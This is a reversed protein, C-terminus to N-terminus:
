TLLEKYLKFLKEEEIVWNYKEEVSQRGRRGMKEAETPHDILYVVAEAIEQPNMPDVCLGCKNSEVIERWLPFNSSIVPIGAAMYEFMKVPLADLYNVVPHLTVLGVKSRALLKSVEARNLFGFENVKSWYHNKKVELETMEEGFVGALNLRVDGTYELSSVIEVIGRVKTIGGVYVAEDFKKSWDIPNIFESLVPYNNVDVTNPNIKLFKDRIFPTASIVGDFKSCVMREYITFAKSLVNKTVRNLYHKTLLQKPLDEHADFIVKKGKRKLKLGVPILEPDHLHYVDADLKLAKDYLLKSTKLMRSFRGGKNLGVDIIHINNILEDGLGDAVILSVNYGCSCLSSCIKIFIRTDYRTHVSTLQVVNM